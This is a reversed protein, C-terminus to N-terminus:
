FFLDFFLRSLRYLVDVSNGDMFSLSAPGLQTFPNSDFDHLFHECFQM